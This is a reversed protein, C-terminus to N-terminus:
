KEVGSTEAPDHLFDEVEHVRRERVSANFSFWALAVVLVLAGAVGLLSSMGVLPADSIVTDRAGAPSGVSWDFSGVVDLMDARRIVLEVKYSGAVAFATTPVEYEGRPGAPVAELVTTAAEFEVPSVRVLVRDIPGPEPRRTNVADILVLNQGPVNPSVTMGLQIDDQIIALQRAEAEIVPQWEAGTAPSISTLVAVVAVAAIAMMSEVGIAAGPRDGSISRRTVLAVVGVAVVLAMKVLMGRGYLSGLFADLSQVQEGIALVGTVLATFFLVTAIPSFGSLTSRGVASRMGTGSRLIQWLIFVAGVWALSAALHVVDNLISLAARETGAAHGGASQAAVAIGVGVLVARDRFIGFLRPLVLALIALAVARLLAWRGWASGLLSTELAAVFGQGSAAYANWLQEVILLVAAVAAVRGGLLTIADTRDVAAVHWPADVSGNFRRRVGDLVGMRVVVGGLLAALGVYLVWRTLVEIPPVPDSPEAFEASALDAEEGIGWVLMGKTIHGDSTSFATWRLSYLGDPIDGLEVVLVSTSAGHAVITADHRNGEADIFEVSSGEVSVPESFTLEVQSPAEDLVSADAPTSRVLTAHASAPGALAVLAALVVVLGVLSRRLSRM